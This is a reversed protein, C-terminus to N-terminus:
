DVKLVVYSKGAYLRYDSGEKELKMPVPHALKDDATTNASLVDGGAINM